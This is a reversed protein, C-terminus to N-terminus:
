SLCAPAAARVLLSFFTKCSMFGHVIAKLYPLFPNCYPMHAFAM